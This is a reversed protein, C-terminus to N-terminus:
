PSAPSNASIDTSQGAEVLQGNATGDEGEDVDVLELSWANNKQRLHLFYREGAEAVFDRLERQGSRCTHKGPAIEFALYQMGGLTGLEQNDCSVPVRASNRDNTRYITVIGNGQPVPFLEQAQKLDELDIAARGEVYAAVRSGIPAWNRLHGTFFDHLDRKTKAPRVIMGGREASVSMVFPKSEGTPLARLPIEEGTVSEVWDLQLSVSGAKPLLLLIAQGREYSGGSGPSGLGPDQVKTVTAAGIAGKSIVVMGNVRVDDSVVLRVTDGERSYVKAKVLSRTMGRVPQALRLRIPTGDPIVFKHTEPLVPIPERSPPPVKLRPREHDIEAKSKPASQASSVGLPLILAMLALVFGRGSGLRCVLKANM